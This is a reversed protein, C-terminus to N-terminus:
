EGNEPRDNGSEEPFGSKKLKRVQQNWIRALWFPSMDLEVALELLRLKRNGALALERLIRGNEQGIRDLHNEMPFDRYFFIEASEWIHRCVSDRIMGAIYARADEPRTDAISLIAETLGLNGAEVRDLFSYSNQCYEWAIAVVLPAYRAVLMNQAEEEGRAARICIEAEEQEPIRPLKALEAFYLKLVEDETPFRVPLEEAEPIPIGAPDLTELKLLEAQDVRPVRRQHYRILEELDM